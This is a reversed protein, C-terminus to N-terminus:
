SIVRTGDDGGICKTEGRTSLWVAASRHATKACLAENLEVIKVDVPLPGASTNALSSVVFLVPTRTFSWDLFAEYERLLKLSEKKLDKELALAAQLRRAVLGVLGDLLVGGSLWKGPVALAENLSRAIELVYWFDGRSARHKLIRSQFARNHPLTAIYLPKMNACLDRMRAEAFASKGSDVHGLFLEIRVAM